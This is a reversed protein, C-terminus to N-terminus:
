IGGFLRNLDAEQEPSMTPAPNTASSRSGIGAGGLGASSTRVASNLADYASDPVQYYSPPSAPLRNQLQSIYPTLDFSPKGARSLAYPAMPGVQGSAILGPLNANYTQAKFVNDLMNHQATDKWDILGKLVDFNDKYDNFARAAEGSKGQETEVYAKAADMDNAFVGNKRQENLFNLSKTYTSILNIRKLDEKDFKELYAISDPSAAFGKTMVDEQAANYQDISFDEPLQGMVDFIKNALFNVQNTFGTIEPPIIHGLPNPKSMTLQQPLVGSVFKNADFPPSKKGLGADRFVSDIYKFSLGYQTFPQDPPPSTNNAGQRAAARDIGKTGYKYLDNFLSSLDPNSSVSRGNDTNPSVSGGWKSIKGDNGPWKNNGFAGFPKGQYTNGEDGWDKFNGSAAGLQQAAFKINFEPNLLELASPRSPFANKDQIQFLGIAVGGDGTAGPNGGSEHMITWLAKDVLAPPFYKAVTPRWKEVQPPFEM